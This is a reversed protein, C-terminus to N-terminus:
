GLDVGLGGPRGGSFPWPCASNLGGGGCIDALAIM